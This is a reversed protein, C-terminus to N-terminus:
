VLNERSQLESTHEESRFVVSYRDSCDALCQSCRVSTCGLLVGGALFLLSRKMVDGGTLTLTSAGPTLDHGCGHMRVTLEHRTNTELVLEVRIPCDENEACRLDKLAARPYTTPATKGCQAPSHANVQ